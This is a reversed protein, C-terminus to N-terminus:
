GTLFNNLFGQVSNVFVDFSIFIHMVPAINDIIKYNIVLVIM